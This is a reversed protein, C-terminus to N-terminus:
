ISGGYDPYNAFLRMYIENLSNSQRNTYRISESGALTANSPDYKLILDYQSPHDLLDIDNKHSPILDQRFPALRDETPASAPLTQVAIPTPKMTCASLVLALLLIIKTRM